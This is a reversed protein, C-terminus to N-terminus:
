KRGSLDRLNWTGDGGCSRPWDIIEYNFIRHANWTSRKQLRSADHGASLENKRLHPQAFRLRLRVVRRYHKKGCAVIKQFSGHTGGRCFRPTVTRDHPSVGPAAQRTLNRLRAAIVEVRANEETSNALVKAAQAVLTAAEHQEQPRCRRCPRFGRNEAENPTRFFLANKRLPRRSPCSPRCYIHTSCVAFVFAGDARRDRRLTALWYREAAKGKISNHAPPISVMKM